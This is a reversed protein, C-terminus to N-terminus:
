PMVAFCLGRKLDNWLLLKMGINNGNSYLSFSRFLITAFLALFHNSDSYWMQSASRGAQQPQTAKHNRRCCVFVYQSRNNTLGGSEKPSMLVVTLALSFSHQPRAESFLCPWDMRCVAELEHLLGHKPMM